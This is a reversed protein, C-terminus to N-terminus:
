GQVLGATNVSILQCEVRPNITASSVSGVQIGYNFDTWGNNTMNVYASGEQTDPNQGLFAPGPVLGIVGADLDQGYAHRFREFYDYQDINNAQVGWAELHNGSGSDPDMEIQQINSMTSCSTSQVGDVVYLLMYLHQLKNDLKSKVISGSTLGNIPRDIYYQVTPLGTVDMALNAPAIWNTGDRYEAYAKITGAGTVAAATGGTTAIVNDLPDPGMLNSPLVLQLQIATSQSMMPLYGAASRPLLGGIPLRLWFTWVNDTNTTINFPSNWVVADLQTNHVMDTPVVFPLARQYGQLVPLYKLTRPRVHIQQKGMMLNIYQIIGYPINDTNAAYTASSGTAPKVSTMNVKILISELYGGAVTPVDYQLTAGATWAQSYGAGSSMPMPLRKPPVKRLYDYNDMAGQPPAVPAPQAPAPRPPQPAVVAPASM